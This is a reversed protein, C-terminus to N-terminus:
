VAWLKRNSGALLDHFIDREVSEVVDSSVAQAELASSGQALAALRKAKEMAVQERLDAITAVTEVEVSEGLVVKTGLVRAVAQLNEVLVGGRGGLIRKVTACSVGSREALASKSLGLEKRRANLSEHLSGTM